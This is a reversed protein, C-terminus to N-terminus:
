EHEKEEFEALVKEHQKLDAMILTNLREGEAKHQAQLERIGALREGDDVPIYHGSNSGRNAVIPIRYRVILRSIIDRATRENIGLLKALEKTNIPRQSGVPILRLLRVELDTM